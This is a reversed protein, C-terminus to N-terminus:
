SGGVTAREWGLPHESVVFNWTWVESTMKMHFRLFAALTTSSKLMARMEPFNSEIDLKEFTIHSRAHLHPAWEMRWKGHTMLNLIPPFEEVRFAAAGKSSAIM